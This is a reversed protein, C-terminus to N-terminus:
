PAMMSKQWSKDMAWSEYVYKFATFM